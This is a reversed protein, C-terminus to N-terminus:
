IVRDKLKVKHAVVLCRHGIPCIKFFWAVDLDEPIEALWESM